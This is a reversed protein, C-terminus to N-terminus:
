EMVSELLMVILIGTNGILICCCLRRLKMKRATKRSIAYVLLNDSIHLHIVESVLTKNKINTIVLDLLTVSTKTMRTPSDILNHLNHAVLVDLLTRGDQRVKDPENLHSNFDTVVFCNGPLGTIASLISEIESKWMSEPIELKLPRKVIILVRLLRRQRVFKTM